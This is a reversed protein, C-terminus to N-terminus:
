SSICLTNHTISCMGFWADPIGHTHGVGNRWIYVETFTGAMVYMGFFLIREACFYDGAGDSQDHWIRRTGVPLKGDAHMM